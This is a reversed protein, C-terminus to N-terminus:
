HYKIGAGSYPANYRERLSKLFLEHDCPVHRFESARHSAHHVRREMSENTLGRITQLLRPVDLPKDMLADVGMKEALERQNWRGTIVIVPLLPNVETLWIMTDRGDKVPLGIDLLVLDIKESKVKDIAEQGNEATVVEYDEAELVKSLAERISCEDDVVLIKKSM